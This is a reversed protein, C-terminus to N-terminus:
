FYKNKMIKKFLALFVQTGKMSITNGGHGIGGNLSGEMYYGRLKRRGFCNKEGGVKGGGAQSRFSRAQVQVSWAQVQVSRAQGQVLRVQGQFSRAQGQVM